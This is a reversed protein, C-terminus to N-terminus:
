GLKLVRSRPEPPLGAASSPTSLSASPKSALSLKSRSTPLPLTLATTETQQRDRHGSAGVKLKERRLAEECTGPVNAESKDYDYDALIGLERRVIWIEDEVHKMASMTNLLEPISSSIASTFHGQCTRLAPPILIGYWKLPDRLTTSTSATFPATTSFNYNHPSEADQDQDHEHQGDEDLRLKDLGLNGPQARDQQEVEDQRTERKNDEDQTRGEDEKRKHDELSQARTIRVVRGAKMREDFGEEGYRRGSGLTSNANRNAQALAFFGSSFTKSLEARITTYTDLLSLYDILLTDLRTTLSETDVSQSQSATPRPTTSSSPSLPPSPLQTAM